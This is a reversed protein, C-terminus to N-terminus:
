APGILSSSAKDSSSPRDLHIPQSGEVAGIASHSTVTLLAHWMLVERIRALSAREIVISADNLEIRATKPPKSPSLQSSNDLSM